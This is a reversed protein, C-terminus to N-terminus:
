VPRPQVLSRIVESFRPEALATGFVYERGEITPHSRVGYSGVERGDIEIDCTGDRFWRQRANRGSWREFHGQAQDVLAMLVSKQHEHKALPRYAELKIFAYRHWQDIVPEDRFCPTWGVHCRPQMMDQSDLWLFAQEGSAVLMGRPTAVDQGFSLEPRTAQIFQLPVTWPLDVWAAGAEVWDRAARHFRYLVDPDLRSIVPESSSATYDAAAM